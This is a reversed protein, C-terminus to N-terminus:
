SRYQNKLYDVTRTIEDSLSVSGKIDIDRYKQAPLHKRTSYFFLGESAELIFYVFASDKKDVRIVLNILKGQSM